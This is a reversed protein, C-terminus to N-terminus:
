QMEELKNVKFNFYLPTFLFTWLGHFWEKSKKESSLILNMRNRAKFGWVLYSITCIRDVFESIKTIPHSEEVFLYAVLLALSLYSISIIFLIFGDSIKNECHENMIKTQRKMYHAAYVYYTIFSLGFLKWTSESQLDTIIRTNM